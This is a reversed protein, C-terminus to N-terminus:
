KNVCGGDDCLSGLTEGHFAALNGADIPLPQQQLPVVAISADQAVLELVCTFKRLTQM